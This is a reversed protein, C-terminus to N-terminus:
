VRRSWSIARLCPAPFSREAGDASHPVCVKGEAAPSLVAAPPCPLNRVHQVRHRVLVSCSSSNVAMDRATVHARGAEALEHLNPCARGSGFLFRLLRGSVEARLPHQEHGSSQPRSRRKSSPAIRTPYAGRGLPCFHQGGNHVRDTAAKTLMKVADVVAGLVPAGKHTLGCSASTGRGSGRLARCVGESRSRRCRGRGPADPRCSHISLRCAWSTPM